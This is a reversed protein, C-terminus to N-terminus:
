FSIFYVYYDHEVTPLGSRCLASCVKGVYHSGVSSHATKRVMADVLKENSQPMLYRTCHKVPCIVPGYFILENSLYINQM